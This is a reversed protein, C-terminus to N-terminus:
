EKFRFAKGTAYLTNGRDQYQVDYIGDAKMQLAQQHLQRLVATRNKQAGSASGNVNGVVTIKDTLAGRYYMRVESTDLQGGSTGAKMDYYLFFPTNEAGGSLTSTKSDTNSMQLSAQSTNTNGSQSVAAVTMTTPFYARPAARNTATNEACAAILLTLGVFLFIRM